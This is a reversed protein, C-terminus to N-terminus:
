QNVIRYYVKTTLKYVAVYFVAFVAISLLTTGMFLKVNQLNLVRLMKVLAPFAFAIHVCAVLLPLAFMTLLQSNIARKSERRSLGVKKMIEYQKQDDYGESVQKYYIILVTALMFVFGLFIGLFFLGGYLEYYESRSAAVSSLYRSTGTTRDYMHERDMESVADNIDNYLQVEAVDDGNVDFGMQYYIWGVTDPNEEIYAERMDYIVEMDRVILAYVPGTESNYASSLSFSKFEEYWETVSFTKGLLSITESGYRDNSSFLIAEDEGLTMSEGSLANYDELPIIYIEAMGKTYDYIGSMTYSDGERYGYVSLTRYATLNEIDANNKETASFVTEEILEIDGEEAITHSLIIDRPYRVEISDEMGFYLSATSSIMVLVMTSLVCITALGAANQKMRYIMGSVSIFHNPKYYYGKNKRLIKIFAISGAVFLLYTGIIVLIVAVFFLMIMDLPNETTVSIWYGVGLVALGLIAAVWKARPEKEGTEGGRILEIPNARWVQVLSYALLGAFIMTFLKLSEIIATGSITFSFRISAGMLNTLILNALKSFLIGLGIGLVISIIFTYLNEFFIIAGINNKEMGLVSFLGFEKKRRKMLFSNTYFLFVVSFIMMVQTGIKLVVSITSGAAEDLSLYYIIYYMSVACICTIM